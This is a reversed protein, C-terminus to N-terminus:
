AVTEAAIGFERALDPVVYLGRMRRAMFAPDVALPDVGLDRALNQLDNVVTEAAVGFQRAVVGLERATQLGRLLRAADTAILNVGLAQSLLRLDQTVGVASLGLGELTNRLNEVVQGRSANSGLREALDHLPGLLGAANTLSRLLFEPRGLLGAWFEPSFDSLDNGNRNPDVVLQSLIEEMNAATHAAATTEAGRVQGSAAQEPRALGQGQQAAGLGRAQEGPLARLLDEHAQRYVRPAEEAASLAFALDHLALEFGADLLRVAAGPPEAATSAAWAERGLLVRVEREVVDDRGAVPRIQGQQGEEVQWEPVQVWQVFPTGNALFERGRESLSAALEEGTRAGRVFQELAALTSAATSPDSRFEDRLASRVQDPLGTASWASGARDIAVAASTAVGPAAVPAAQRAVELAAAPGAEAGAAAPGAEAVAAPGAAAPGALHRQVAGQVRLLTRTAGTVLRQASGQVETLTVGPSPKGGRLQGIQSTLLSWQEVGDPTSLWGLHRNARDRESQDVSPDAAIERLGDVYLGQLARAIRLAEATEPTSELYRLAALHVANRRAVEASFGRDYVSPLAAAEEAARGGAAAAQREAWGAVQQLGAIIGNTFRGLRGRGLNFAELPRVTEGMSELTQVLQRADPSPLDHLVQRMVVRAIEPPLSDASGEVAGSRGPQPPLVAALWEGPNTIEDAIAEDLGLLALDRVLSEARADRPVARVDRPVAQEDRSRGSGLGTLRNIGRAARRLTAGAGSVARAVSRGLRGPGPRVVPPVFVPPVRRAVAAPAEVVPADVAQVEAVPAVAVPVEVAPAEAVPAEVVPADVAQVEVAPAEVVPAEAVPADVAQVEVAPAEVVPAEEVPAVAPRAAEAQQQSTEAQERLGLVESGSGPVRAQPGTQGAVGASPASRSVGAQTLPRLSGPTSGTAPLARRIGSGSFVDPRATLPPAAPALHPEVATRLAELTARAGALLDRVGADREQAPAERLATLRDTLRDGVAAWTRSGMPGDAAVLADFLAGASEPTRGPRTLPEVAGRVVDRLALVLPTVGAAHYPSTLGNADATRSNPSSVDGSELWTRAVEGLIEVAGETLAAVQRAPGDAGLDVPEGLLGELRPRGAEAIRPGLDRQLRPVAELVRPDAVGRPRGDPGARFGQGAALAALEPVLRGSQWASPGFVAEALAGLGSERLSVEPAATGAEVAEAGAVVGAAAEHGSEVTTDTVPRAPPALPARSTSAEATGATPATQPRGSALLRSIDGTLETTDGPTSALQAMRDAIEGWAQEVADGSVAALSRAASRTLAPHGGGEALQQLRERYAAL